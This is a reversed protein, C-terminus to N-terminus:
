NREAIRWWDAIVKGAVPNVLYGYSRHCNLGKETRFFNYLGDAHDEISEIIGADIMPKFDDHFHQDLATIDGVAAINYWHRILTPYKRKGRETNGLLRHQVFNIGLPSGLSLFDVQGSQKEHYSLEWLADYTIISGMSHGIILVAENNDLMPRLVRKLQERIVSGINNTNEFYRKTEKISECAHGRAICIIAPFKDALAYFFRTLNKHWAHAQKIDRNTPGHKHILAEIWTLDRYGDKREEYYLQNWAILKFNEKYQALELAWGPEARKVGEALTRWLLQRHQKPPPKPNKGPVFILNRNRM